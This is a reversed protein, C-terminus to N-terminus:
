SSRSVAEVVVRELSARQSEIARALALQGHARLLNHESRTPAIQESWGFYREELADVCFRAALELSIRWTGPVLAAREEPLVFDATSLYGEVGAALIAPDISASADDEGATNCWSRFADGLEVDLSYRGLTDLDILSVAREGELDFRINSAKLDGHAPRLPLGDPLAARCRTWGRLISAGTECIGAELRHGECETIVQELREMHRPTDHAGVRLPELDGLLPLLAKHFRGILRAADFAHRPGPFRHFSTGPIWTMLRWATGDPGAVTWTDQATTVLAPCAIGVSNLRESVLAIRDHIEPPFIANVQQLAFRPPNGVSWTNNILGGDPLSCFEVGDAIPWCSLADEPCEFM